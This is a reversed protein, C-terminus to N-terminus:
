SLFIFIAASLVFLEAADRRIPSGRSVRRFVTIGPHRFHVDDARRNTRGVACTFIRNKM